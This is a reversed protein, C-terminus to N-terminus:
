EEDENKRITLFKIIDDNIRYYRELEKIVEPNNKFTFIQYYGKLCGKIEYALNKIGLNESKVINLNEKLYNDIKEINEITATPKIIIITEYTLIAKEKLEKIESELKKISEKHNLIESEKQNIEKEIEKINEM